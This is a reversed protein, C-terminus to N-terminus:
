SQNISYQYASLASIVIVLWFISIKLNGKSTTETSKGTSTMLASARDLEQSLPCSDPKKVGLKQQSESSDCRNATRTVIHEEPCIVFKFSGHRRTFLFLWTLGPSDVFDYSQPGGRLWVSELYTYRLDGWRGVRSPLVEGEGCGPSFIGVHIIKM